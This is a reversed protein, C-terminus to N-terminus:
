AESSSGDEANRSASNALMRARLRALAERLECAEVETLEDNAKAVLEPRPETPTVKSRHNVVLGSRVWCALESAQAAGLSKAIQNWAALVHARRALLERRAADHRAMVRLVGEPSLGVLVTEQALASGILQEWTHRRGRFRKPMTDSVRRVGQYRRWRASM